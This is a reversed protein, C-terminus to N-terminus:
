HPLNKALQENCPRRKPKHPRPQWRTFERRPAPLARRGRTPCAKWRTCCASTCRWVSAPTKLVKNQIYEMGVRHLYHVTRELYFAEERYLQLFAGTYEKVEEPQVGQRLIGGSRDQHRRQRRYLAGLWFGGRHHGRGQHRIRRLQAAALCRWSSRTRAGCIPWCPKWSSAWRRATKRALAASNRGVCTKVTRISKGYAHGSNM